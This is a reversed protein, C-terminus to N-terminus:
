NALATVTYDGTMSNQGDVIVFYTGPPQNPLTVTLDRAPGDCVVDAGGCSPRVYLLLRSTMLNAHVTFTLNRTSTTKLFYVADPAQAGVDTGCTTLSNSFTNMRGTTTGNIVSGDGVLDVAGACLNGGDSGGGDSGGGDSGGDPVIGDLTITLDRTSRQRVIASGAGTLETTGSGSTTVTV